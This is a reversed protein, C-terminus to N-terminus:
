LYQKPVIEVLKLPPQVPPIKRQETCTILFYHPQQHISLLFSCSFANKTLWIEQILAAGTSLHAKM